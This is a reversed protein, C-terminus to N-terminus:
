IEASTGKFDNWAILFVFFVPFYIQAVIMNL